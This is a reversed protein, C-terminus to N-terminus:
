TLSLFDLGGPPLSLTAGVLSQSAQPEFGPTPPIKEKRQSNETVGQKNALDLVTRLYSDGTQYTLIILLSCCM